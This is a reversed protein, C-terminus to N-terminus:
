VIEEKDSDKKAKKITGGCAIYAKEADKLTPYLKKFETFTHREGATEHISFGEIKIYSM